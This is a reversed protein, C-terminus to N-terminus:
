LQFQDGFYRASIRPDAIVVCESFHGLYVDRGKGHQVDDQHHEVFRSLDHKISYARGSIRHFKYRPGSNRRMLAARSVRGRVRQQLQYTCAPLAV